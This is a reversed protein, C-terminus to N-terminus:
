LEALFLAALFLAFHATLSSLSCSRSLFLFVKFQASLATQLASLSTLWRRLFGRVHSSVDFTNLAVLGNTLGSFCSVAHYCLDFLTNM